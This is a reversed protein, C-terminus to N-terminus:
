KSTIAGLNGFEAFLVFYRGNLRNLDKLTV